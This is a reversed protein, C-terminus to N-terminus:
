PCGFSAPDWGDSCLDERGQRYHDTVFQGFAVPDFCNAKITFGWSSAAWRVDLDPDPLLIV